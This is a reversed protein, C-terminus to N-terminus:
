FPRNLFCLYKGVEVLDFMNFRQLDEGKSLLEFAQELYLSVNEFYKDNENHLFLFYNFLSIGSIGEILGITKLTGSSNQIVDKISVIINNQVLM